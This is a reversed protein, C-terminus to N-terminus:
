IKYYINCSRFIKCRKNTGVLPHVDGIKLYKFLKIQFDNIIDIKDGFVKQTIPDNTISPIEIIAIKQTQAAILSAIFDADNTKLLAITPLGHLTIDFKDKVHHPLKNSFNVSLGMKQTLNKAQTLEKSNNNIITVECDSFDQKIVLGFLGYGGSFDGFSFTQFKALIDAIARYEFLSARIPSLNRGEWTSTQWINKNDENPVM